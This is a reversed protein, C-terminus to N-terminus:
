RLREFRMEFVSYGAAADIGMKTSNEDLLM